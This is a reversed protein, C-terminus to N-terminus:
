KQFGYLTRWLYYTAYAEWGSWAQGLALVEERQPKGKGLAAGIANQLGVDDVPFASQVRLTKMMVYNATWPGIGRHALLEREMAEPALKRLREKSLNGAQMARAVRILYEGKRQSIQLPLLEQPELPAIKEPGPFILFHQGQYDLYDGFNEALRRKQAQAFTMNVQQGVIAWSLAEFLDPIGVLRLGQHQSAPEKLLPDQQALQYFPTLDRDLDLWETVFAQIRSQTLQSSPTLFIIELNDKHASVSFLAKEGEINLARTVSTKTVTFLPEAPMGLLFNLIEQFSFPAKPSLALM